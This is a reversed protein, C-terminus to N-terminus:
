LPDQVEDREVQFAKDQLERKLRVFDKSAKRNKLLKLGSIQKSYDGIVLYTLHKNTPTLGNKLTQIAVEAM